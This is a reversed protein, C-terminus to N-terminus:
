RPWHFSARMENQTKEIKGAQKLELEAELAAFDETKLSFITLTPNHFGYTGSPASFEKVVPVRSFVSKFRNQFVRNGFPQSFYRDYFLSSLVLYDSGSSKLAEPTVKKLLNIRYIYDSGLKDPPLYPGYPQWDILVRSNPPANDVLWQAAQERTDPRIDRALELTRWAPVAVSIAVLAPAWRKLKSRSIFELFYAAAVALFPLCPFIYREAQPAPKSKIWEAPLYFVAILSLILLDEIRRRWLLIGVGFLSLLATVSSIGPIISRSFHYMWYQSWADIAQTHGRLAHKREYRFDSQFKGYDLVIYPSACLFAVPMIALAAMTHFAFKMDPKWTRSRLWPAALVIFIALVGSYKTSATLGALIGALYLFAKRNDQAAKVVALATALIFFVLLSDEKLYRSSTVHLPFVALLAASIVGVRRGALRAALFYLLLISASGALASVVRGALFATERFEGQMGFAHFVTNVFYTSYLLFSPHLFYRPNFSDTAVMQMIANVKPIEDPHYNNPLGFDIGHFRLVAGAILILLVAVHFPTQSSRAILSQNQDRLEAYRALAFGSCICLLTVWLWFPNSLDRIDVRTIPYYAVLPILLSFSRSRGSSFCYAVILSLILLAGAVAAVLWPSVLAIGLRSTIRVTEIQAGLAREDTPSARFPNLVEFLLTKPECKAKLSVALETGAGVLYEQPPSGCVAITLHSDPVPPRWENFQFVARNGLAALRPFKLQAGATIWGDKGIGRFIEQSPIMATYRQYSAGLGFLSAAISLVSLAIGLVQLKRSM